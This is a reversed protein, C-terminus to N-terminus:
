LEPYWFNSSLRIPGLDLHRLATPSVRIKAKEEKQHSGAIRAEDHLRMTGAETETTM